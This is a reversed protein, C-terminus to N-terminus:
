IEFDYYQSYGSVYIYSSQTSSTTTLGGSQYDCEGSLISYTGRGYLYNSTQYSEIHAESWMGDHDPYALGLIDTPTYKTSFYYYNIGGTQKDIKCRASPSFSLSIGWPPSVSISATSSGRNVPDYDYILSQASGQVTLTNYGIGYYGGSKTAVDTRYTTHTLYKGESNSNGTNEDVIVVMDVYVYSLSDTRTLVDLNSWSYTEADATNIEILSAPSILKGIYDYTSCHKLTDIADSDNILNIQTINNREGEKYILTAYSKLNTVGEPSPEPDDEPKNIKKTVNFGFYENYDAKDLDENIIIVRNGSDYVEKIAKKVNIDSLQTGDVWLNSDNLGIIGQLNEKTIQTIGKTETNESKDNIYYINKNELSSIAKALVKTNISIGSFTIIFTSCLLISIIRKKM